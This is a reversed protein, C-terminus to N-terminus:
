LFRWHVPLWVRAADFLGNTLGAHFGFFGMLLFM